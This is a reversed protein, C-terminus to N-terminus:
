GRAANAGADIEAALAGIRPPPLDLAALSRLFGYTVRRHIRLQTQSYLWAGFRAFRGRGRIWPYFNRVQVSVLLSSDPAPGAEYRSVVIRLFGHGQGERAVLRGRTIRWTVSAHDGHTEYEPAHFSLLRLRRWLVVVHRAEPEYVVRILGLAVRSLYRWYARALRELNHPKWLEDLRSSPLSIVAEQISDVGSSGPVRQQAEPLLKVAAINRKV